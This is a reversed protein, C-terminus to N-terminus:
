SLAPGADRAISSGCTKLRAFIMIDFGCRLTPIQAYRGVDPSVFALSFKVNHNGHDRRAISQGSLTEARELISRFEDM